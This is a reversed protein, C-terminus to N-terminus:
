FSFPYNLTESRRVETVKPQCAPISLSLRQIIQHSTQLDLSSRNGSHLAPRLGTLGGDEDFFLRDAAPEEGRPIMLLPRASVAVPNPNPLPVLLLAKQTIEKQSVQEL